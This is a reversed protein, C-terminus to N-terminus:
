SIRSSDNQKYNKGKETLVYDDWRHDAPQLPDREIYGEEELKWFTPFSIVLKRDSMYVQADYGKRYVIKHGNQMSLIIVIQKATLKHTNKAM